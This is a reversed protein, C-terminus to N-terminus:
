FPATVRNAKGFSFSINFSELKVLVGAVNELSWVSVAASQVTPVSNYNLAAETVLIQNLVVHGERSFWSKPNMQFTSAMKKEESRKIWKLVELVIVSLLVIGLLFGYGIKWDNGAGGIQMGLVINLAGFLLALRGMSHHYWNWYKRIKAEKNPRLFFALIQLISLVLIFIGIGRHTPFHAGIENYLQQGLVVAALGFVFGVFQIVSHLYYWLPDKHKFYRPVIAGLPLILGWGLIALIGHNKKMQGLDSPAASASGASFDFRITTKDDHETLHLHKPYAFGFALILPQQNLPKDFKLQFALYIRPGHLVVSPPIGTLPLEGKDAIVQSKRSGQLYFQKIRAQGKKTVWGVIASSGVMMGDKSFGMGAWGTTYIASLVINMVNEENQTYRLVFTNWVPKCIVNTLNGYPPPLFNSLDNNCLESEGAGATTSGVGGGYGAGAGARGVDAAVFIQAELVLALAWLLGLLLRSPSVGLEWIAM